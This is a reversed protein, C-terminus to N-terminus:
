VTEMSCRLPFENKKALHHVVSIKTECIEKTYVGAIGVGENHVNLMIQAADNSSKHFIKELISIVFEMTTYDDNHLLVKYLQPEKVEM